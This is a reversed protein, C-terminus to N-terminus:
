GVREILSTLLAVLSARKRSSHTVNGRAHPRAPRPSPGRQELAKREQEAPIFVRAAGMGQAGATVFCLSRVRQAFRAPM